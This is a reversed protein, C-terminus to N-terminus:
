CVEVVVLTTPSVACEDALEGDHVAVISLYISLNILIATIFEICDSLAEARGHGISVFKRRYSHMQAPSKEVSRFVCNKGVGGANPGM